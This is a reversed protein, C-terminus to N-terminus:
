TSNDPNWVLKETETVSPQEYPGLFGAAEIDALSCSYCYRSTHEGTFFRVPLIYPKESATKNVLVGSYDKVESRSVESM